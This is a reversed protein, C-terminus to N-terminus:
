QMNQCFKGALVKYLSVGVSLMRMEPVVTVMGEYQKHVEGQRMGRGAKSVVFLDRPKIEFSASDGWDILRVDTYMGISDILSDPLILDVLQNVVAFTAWSLLPHIVWQELPFQDFNQINAHRMIERKLTANMQSEKEDFTIPSGDERVKVYDYRDNKQKLSLYHHWYDIFAIYPALYENGGAFKLMNDTFSKM